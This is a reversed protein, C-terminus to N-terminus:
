GAQAGYFLSSIGHFTYGEKKLKQYAEEIVELLSQTKVHGIMIATGTAAAVDVGSMFAKSVSAKDDVNDLFLVNRKAFAVGEEEAVKEAVSEHTTVSDLFFMGKEGLYSMVARMIKRNATAKSGMHNNMGKIEPFGSLNSDLAKYIEDADMDTMIAGVGPNQGGEAEMPQHLIMDFGADKILKASEASFPRGPMIAFTVPVSMGLQYQLSSINNGVDDIIIFIKRDRPKERPVTELPTEITEKADEAVATDYDVSESASDIEEFVIPGVPEDVEAKPLVGIIVGLLVAILILLTITFATKRNKRV